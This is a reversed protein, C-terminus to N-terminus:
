NRRSKKSLRKKVVVVSSILLISVVGIIAFIGGYGIGKDNDKETTSVSSNQLGQESKYGIAKQEAENLEKIKVM